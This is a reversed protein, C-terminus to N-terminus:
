SHIKHTTKKKLLTVEMKSYYATVQKRYAKWEVMQIYKLIWNPLVLPQWKESTPKKFNLKAKVYVKLISHSSWQQGRRDHVM